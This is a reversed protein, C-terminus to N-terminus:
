RGGGAPAPIGLLGALGAPAGVPEVAAPAPVTGRLWEESYDIQEPRVQKGAVPNIGVPPYNMQVLQLVPALQQVCLKAAEAAGLQSAAQIAGCIFQV